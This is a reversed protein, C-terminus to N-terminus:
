VQPASLVAGWLWVMVVFLGLSLIEASGAVMKRAVIM